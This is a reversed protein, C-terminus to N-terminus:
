VMSIASCMLEEALQDNEAFEWVIEAIDRSNTVLVAVEYEGCELPTIIVNGPRNGLLFDFHIKLDFNEVEMGLEGAWYQVDASTVKVTMKLM